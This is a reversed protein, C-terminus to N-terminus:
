KNGETFATIAISMRKKAELTDATPGQIHEYLDSDKLVEYKEAVTSEKPNDSVRLYNMVGVFLSETWAINVQGSIPRLSARGLNKNIIKASLKFLNAAERVEETIKGDSRDYFSNLFSKLPKEYDEWYLYMAIIRSILEHDRVRPNKKGYLSRWNEDENLGAIFEVLDGAYLAIRIEHPTLQTGGSNIREFIQYIARMDGERPASSLITTQIYTDEIRTQDPEPLEKFSKGRWEDKVENGLSFENKLYKSLTTLRQQGDLVLSREDSQKVLFIGPIPYELLISEIFRDMQSKRWVFGRQFGESEQGEKKEGFRPVLIKGADLRRVLGFVDIDQGSYRVKAVNGENSDIDSIEEDTLVQDEIQAEMDEVKKEEGM